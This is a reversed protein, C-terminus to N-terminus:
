MVHDLAATYSQISYASQLALYLTHFDEAGYRVRMGDVRQWGPIMMVVDACLANIFTMELTYPPALTLLNNQWSAPDGLVRRTKERYEALVEAEPRSLSAAFGLSTKTQVTALNPILGTIERCFMADGSALIVPVRHVLSAYLANIGGEGYSVGNVSVDFIKTHFTHCLVGNETGAKAHYGIYMAADFCSDLGASMAVAKPKGSLLSVRDGVDDLGLNIMSMHSDNVVIAKVGVEIATRIVASVEEGMQRVATRYAEADGHPSCQLPSVVGTIGEIDASIYLRTM